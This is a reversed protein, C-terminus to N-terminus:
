LYYMNNKANTIDSGASVLDGVVGLGDKVINDLPKVGTSIKSFVKAPNVIESIECFKARQNIEKQSMYDPSPSNGIARGLETGFFKSVNKDNMQDAIAQINTAEKERYEVIKDQAKNMANQKAKALETPNNRNFSNDKSLIEQTITEEDVIYRVKDLRELAEAFRPDAKVDNTAISDNMTEDNGYRRGQYKHKEFLENVKNINNQKEEDTINIPSEKNASPKTIFGGLPKQKIPPTADNVSTIAKDSTTADNKAYKVNSKGLVSRKIAEQNLFSPINFSNDNLVNWRTLIDEAKKVNATPEIKITPKIEQIIGIPKNEDKEEEDKKPRQAVFGLKENIKNITEGDPKMIGDVMLNNDKQFNKIGDIMSQTPINDMGWDPEKYYGLNKLATKTPIVDDQNVGSNSAISNKLKLFDFM